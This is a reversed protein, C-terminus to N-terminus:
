RIVIGISPGYPGYPPFGGYPYGYGGFGGTPPVTLLGYNGALPSNGLSSLLYPASSYQVTNGQCYPLGGTFNLFGGISGLGYSGYSPSYYPSHFGGAGFSLVQSQGLNNQGGTLGGGSVACSPYPYFGLQEVVAGTPLLAAPTAYERAAVPAAATGLAILAGAVFGAGLRTWFRATM